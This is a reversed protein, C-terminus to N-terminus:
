GNFPEAREEWKALDKENKNIPSGPHISGSPCREAAVVLDKYSGLGPDTIVAKKNENYVFLKANVKMCDDCATCTEEDIWATLGLDEEEEEVPTAVPVEPGNTGTVSVPASAAPMVSMAGMLSEVTGGQGMLAEAMRRAVDKPYTQKLDEIKGEYDSRLADLRNEFDAEKEASIQARVDDAIKDGSMERLEGWFDLRERGLKVLEEAVGVRDLRRDKNLV